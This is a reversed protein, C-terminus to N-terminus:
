KVILGGGIECEVTRGSRHSTGVWWGLREPRRAAILEETIILM